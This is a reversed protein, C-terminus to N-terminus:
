NFQHFSTSMAACDSRFSVFEESLDEFGAHVEHTHELGLHRTTRRLRIHEAEESGGQRGDRDLDLQHREPPHLQPRHRQGVALEQGARHLAAHRLRQRSRAEAVSGVQRQLHHQIRRLLLDVPRLQPRRRRVLQALDLHLLTVAPVRNQAQLREPRPQHRRHQHRQRTGALLHPQWRRLLESLAGLRRVVVQVRGDAPGAANEQGVAHVVAAARHGQHVRQVRAGQLRHLRGGAARQQSALGPQHRHQPDAEQHAEVGVLREGGRLLLGLHAARGIRLRIQEGEAVLPRLHRRPQHAVAGAGTEVEQGRRSDLRLREQRRFM